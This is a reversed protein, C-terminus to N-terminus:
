ETVLPLCKELLRKSQRYKFGRNLLVHRLGPPRRTRQHNLLHRVQVQRKVTLDRRIWGPVMEM